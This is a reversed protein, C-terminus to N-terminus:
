RPRPIEHSKTLNRKGKPKEEKKAEPNVFKVYAVNVFPIFAHEDELRVDVGNLEKNLTMDVTTRNGVKEAYWYYETTKGLKFSEHVKMEKIKESM